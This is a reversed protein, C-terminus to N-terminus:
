KVDGDMGLICAANGSGYGDASNSTQKEYRYIQSAYKQKGLYLASALCIDDDGRTLFLFDPLGSANEDM